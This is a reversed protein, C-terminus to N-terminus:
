QIRARIVWAALMILIAVIPNVFTLVFSTMGSTSPRGRYTEMIFVWALAILVGGILIM